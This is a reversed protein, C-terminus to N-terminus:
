GAANRELWGLLAGFAPSMATDTATRTTSGAADEIIITYSMADRVAPGPRGPGDRDARVADALRRLEGAAEPPLRDTDAVRPPLRRTIAAALGGRTSLSVRM